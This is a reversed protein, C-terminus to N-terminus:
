RNKLYEEGYYAWQEMSWGAPLGEPPLQPMAPPVQPQLPAMPAMVPLHAPSADFGTPLSTRKRGFFLLVGVLTLLLPLGVFLLLSNMESEDEVYKSADM